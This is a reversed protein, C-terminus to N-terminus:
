NKLHKDKHLKQSISYKNIYDLLQSIIDLTEELSNNTENVIKETNLIKGKLTSIWDIEKWLKKDVSDEIYKKM